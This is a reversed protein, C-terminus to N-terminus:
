NGIRVKELLCVNFHTKNASNADGTMIAYDMGSHRALSQSLPFLFTILLILFLLFLLLFPLSVRM